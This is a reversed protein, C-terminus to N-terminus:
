LSGWTVSSSPKLSMRALTESSALAKNPTAIIYQWTKTVLRIGLYTLAAQLSSLQLSHEFLELLAGAAASM